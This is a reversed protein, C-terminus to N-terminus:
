KNKFIEALSEVIDGSINFTHHSDEQGSKKIYLKPSALDHGYVGISMGDNLEKVLYFGHFGTENFEVSDNYDTREFGLDIYKRYLMSEM